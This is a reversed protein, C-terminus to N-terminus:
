KKKRKVPQFSSKTDKSVEPRADSAGVVTPNGKPKFALRSVMAAGEAMKAIQAPSKLKKPQYAKEGFKKVLEKEAEKEDRWKRHADGEVLKYGPVKARGTNLRHFAQTSAKTARMKLLDFLDLFEGLEEGTVEHDEKSEIEESLAKAREEIEDLAPCDGVGRAACFRCHKGPVLEDSDQAKDMAPILEDSAWRSLEKRTTEWVRIPGDQHYARPQVVHLVVRRWNGKWLGLEELVGVAYYSLQVNDKAEVVVGIGHKYDWIHVTGTTEDLYVFDATGYFLEHIEPCHFKREVYYTGERFGPHAEHISRVFFDTAIAMEASVKTGKIERGVHRWTEEDNKLACESVEHAVTGEEAFSSSEEVGDRAEVKACQKPSGSCVMWRSAGSAGLPSHAPLKSAGTM